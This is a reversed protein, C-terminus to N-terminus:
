TRNEYQQLTRDNRPQDKNRKQDKICSRSDTNHYLILHSRAKKKNTKYESTINNNNKKYLADAMMNTLSPKYEINYTYGVLKIIFKQQKPIQIM